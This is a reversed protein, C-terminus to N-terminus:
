YFIDSKDVEYLYDGRRELVLDLLRVLRKKPAAPM